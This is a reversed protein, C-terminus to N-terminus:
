KSVDLSGAFEPGQNHGLLDKALVEVQYTRGGAKPKFSLGLTLTVSSLDPVNPTVRTQDLYLTAASTELRNPRGPAFAPSSNGTKPDFLNFKGTATDFVMWLITDQADRFRLQVSALDRWRRGDTITYALSYNLAQGVAVRAAFPKLVFTGVTPLRFDVDTKNSQLDITRSACDCDFIGVLHSGRALYELTYEGDPGTVTSVRDAFDFSVLGSVLSPSLRIQTSGRTILTGTVNFSWNGNTRSGTLAASSATTLVFQSVGGTTSVLVMPRVTGDPQVLSAAAANSVRLIANAQSITAFQKIEIPATTVISGSTLTNKLWRTIRGAGNAVATAGPIPRGGQTLTGRLGFHNAPPNVDMSWVGRGFTGAYLTNGDASLRLDRVMTNPLGLPATANAWHGGADDTRFVGVDGSVYWRADPGLPHRVIGFLPAHPLSGNHIGVWGSTTVNTNHFLRDGAIFTNSGSGVTSPTERGEYGIAVLLDHCTTPSPSIAWIGAPPVGTRDLETWNAGADDSEFLEGAGSGAYITQQSTSCMGLSQIVSPQSGAPRFPFMQWDATGLANDKMEPNFLRFFARRPVWSLLDSLRNFLLPHEGDAQGDLLLPRANGDYRVVAGTSKTLYVRSSNDHRFAASRGDGGIQPAWNAPKRLATADSGNDAFSVSSGNDQTGIAILGGHREHVDMRWVQTVGLTANLSTNTNSQDSHRYIGGDSCLYVADPESPDPVACQFDNHVGSEDVESFVFGIGEVFGGRSINTGGLYLYNQTACFANRKSDKHVIRTPSVLESWTVGAASSAFVRVADDNFVAVYISSTAARAALLIIHPRSAPDDLDFDTTHLIVKLWTTGDRSAYLLGPGGGPDPNDHSDFNRRRTASAYFHGDVLAIDDWNADPLVSGRGDVAARWTAGGDASQFLRGGPLRSGRGTAALINQSNNPDVVIRSVTYDRMEASGFQEWTLGGDLSRMIGISFPPILDMRKSDGTGVFIRNPNNPDIAVATAAQIPWAKSLPFWITGHDVTKWVGGGPGTAYMIGSNTPDIALQNIRGSTRVGLRGEQIDTPGEFRWLSGIAAPLADREALAKTMVDSVAAPTQGYVIRACLLGLTALSIIVLRHMKKQTEEHERGASPDAPRSPWSESGPSRVFCSTLHRRLANDSM